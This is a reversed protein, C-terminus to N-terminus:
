KGAAASAAAGIVNGVATGASNIAAVANTTITASVNGVTFNHAGGLAAQNTVGSTVQSAAPDTFLFTGGGRSRDTWTERYAVFIRPGQALWGTPTNTEGTFAFETYANTEGGPLNLGGVPAVVRWDPPVAAGYKVLEHTTTSTKTFHACGNGAAAASLLFLLSLHPQKM